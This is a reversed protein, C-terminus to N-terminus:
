KELHEAAAQESDVMLSSNAIQQIYEVKNSELLFSQLNNNWGIFAELTAQSSYTNWALLCVNDRGVGVEPM